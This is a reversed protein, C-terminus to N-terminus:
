IPECADNFKPVPIGQKELNNKMMDAAMAILSNERILKDPVAHVNNEESSKDPINEKNLSNFANSGVEPDAPVVNKSYLAKGGSSDSNLNYSIFISRIGNSKTKGYDIGLSHIEDDHQLLDRYLWNCKFNQEPYDKKLESCIESATGSVSKKRYLFDHIIFSFIDPKSPPIDDLLIWKSKERKLNLELAAAGRGSIHLKANEGNRTLVLLGDACGAIGNTGLILNNPNSDHAKRNHHVLIVAIELSDALGKMVSLEQYDAGYKADTTSRIKQLTDIVVMKLNPFIKKCERLDDELGSGILNAILTFNLNESPEDTLEYLRSQLSVFTDELAMYVVQGQETKRGLFKEGKAVALCMDLVMWSKGIKPDGSLIHVGPYIMGDVIFRQKKMPTNMIETSSIIKLKKRESM